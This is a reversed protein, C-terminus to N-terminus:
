LIQCPPCYKVEQKGQEVPATHFLRLSWGKWSVALWEETKQQFAEREQLLEADSWFSKTVDHAQLTKFNDFKFEFPIDQKSIALKASSQLADVAGRLGGKQASPYARVHDRAQQIVNDVSLFVGTTKGVCWLVRAIDKINELDVAVAYEVFRQNMMTDLQKCAPAGTLEELSSYCFVEGFLFKGTYHYLLERTLMKVQDERGTFLFEVVQDDIILKTDIEFNPSLNRSLLARSEM